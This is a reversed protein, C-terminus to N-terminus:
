SISEDKPFELQIVNYSGNGMVCNEKVSRLWQNGGVRGKGLEHM